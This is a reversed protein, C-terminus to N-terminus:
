FEVHFSVIFLLFLSQFVSELRSLLLHFLHLPLMLLLDLPQFIIKAVVHVSSASLVRNHLTELSAFFPRLGKMDCSVARVVTRTLMFENDYSVCWLSRIFWIVNKLVSFVILRAHLFGLM